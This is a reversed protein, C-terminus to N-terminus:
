TQYGAARWTASAQALVDNQLFALVAKATDAEKLAATEARERTRSGARCTEVQVAMSAAFALVIVVLAARACAWVIVDSLKGM